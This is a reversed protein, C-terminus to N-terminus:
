IREFTTLIPRHLRVLNAAAAAYTEVMSELDEIQGGYGALKWAHFTQFQSNIQRRNGEFVRKDTLHM